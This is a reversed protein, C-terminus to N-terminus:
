ESPNDLKTTEEVTVVTNSNGQRIIGIRAYYGKIILIQLNGVVCLFM